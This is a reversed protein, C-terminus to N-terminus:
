KEGEVNAPALLDRGPATPATSLTDYQERLEDLLRQELEAERGAADTVRGFLGDKAYALFSTTLGYRDLRTAGLAEDFAGRWDGMKLRCWIMGHEAVLKDDPLLRALRRFAREAERYNGDSLRLRALTICDAPTARDGLRNLLAAAAEIQGSVEYMSALARLVSEDDPNTTAARELAELAGTFDGAAARAFGLDLLVEGDNPSHRAGDELVAIAEGLQGGASLAEGLLRALTPDRPARSLAARLTTAAENFDGDELAIAARLRACRADTAGGPATHCRTAWERAIDVEGRGLAQQGAAYCEAVTTAGADPDSSPATQSM